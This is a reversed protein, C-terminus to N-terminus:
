QPSRTAPTLVRITFPPFPNKGGGHEPVYVNGSPSIAVRYGANIHAQTAPCGDGADNSRAACAPLARSNPGMGAIV